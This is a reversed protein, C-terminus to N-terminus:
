VTEPPTLFLNRRTHFREPRTDLKKRRMDKRDNQRSVKERRKFFSGPRTCPTGWLVKVEDVRLKPPSVHIVL